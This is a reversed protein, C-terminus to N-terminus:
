KSNYTEFVSKLNDIIPYNAYEKPDIWEYSDHEESLTVTNSASECIFFFAIIQWQEGRVMPRWEGHTFPHKIAVELGTEEAIERLLTDIVQEGPHLRGGPIDYSGENTGDPNTSAERLILVKDDHVVFAKTALFFKDIHMSGYGLFLPM